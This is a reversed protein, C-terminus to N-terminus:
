VMNVGSFVSGFVALMFCIMRETLLGGRWVMEKECIM